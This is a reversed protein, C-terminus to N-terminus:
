KILGGSPTLEKMAVLDVEIAKLIRRSDAEPVGLGVPPSFM